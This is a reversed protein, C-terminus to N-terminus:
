HSHLPTTPNIKRKRGPNELQNQWPSEAESSNYRHKLIMCQPPDQIALTKMYAGHERALEKMGTETKTSGNEQLWTPRATFACPSPFSPLSEHDTTYLSVALNKEPREVILLLQLVPITLLFPSQPDETKRKDGTFSPSSVPFDWIGLRRTRNPLLRPVFEALM